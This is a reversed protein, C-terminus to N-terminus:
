VKENQVMEMDKIQQKLLTWYWENKRVKFHKILNLVHIYNVILFMGLVIEILQPLFYLTIYLLPVFILLMVPIRLKRRVKGMIYKPIFNLEWRLGEIGRREYLYIQLNTLIVDLVYFMIVLNILTM